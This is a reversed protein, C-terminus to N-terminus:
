SWGYLSISCGAKFNNADPYLKISTIAATNNWGGTGACFQPADSYDAGAFQLTKALTTGKYNPITITVPSSYKAAQAGGSIIYQANIFSGSNEFLNVSAAPSSYRNAGVTWYNSGTDGNLQIQLNTKEKEQGKIKNELNQIQGEFDVTKRELNGQKLRYFYRWKILLYKLETPSYDDEFESTMLFELIEDDKLESIM